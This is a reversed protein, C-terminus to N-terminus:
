QADAAKQMDREQSKVLANAKDAAEKARAEDNQLATTYKEPAQVVQQVAANQKAKMM